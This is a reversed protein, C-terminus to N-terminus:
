FYLNGLKVRQANQNLLLVEPETNKLIEGSLGFPSCSTPVGLRKSLTVMGGEQGRGAKEQQRRSVRWSELGRHKQVHEDQMHFAKYAKDM